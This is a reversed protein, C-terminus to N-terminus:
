LKYRKGPFSKKAGGGLTLVDSKTRSLVLVFPVLCLWDLLSAPLWRLFLVDFLPAGPSVLLLMLQYLLEVALIVFAGDRLCRVPEDVLRDRDGPNLVFAAAVLLLAMLGVPTTSILDFFLGSVFAVWLPAVGGGMFAAVFACVLCFNVHGAALALYPALALQLVFCVICLIALRRTRQNQDNVIMM